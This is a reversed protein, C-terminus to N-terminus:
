VIWEEPLPGGWMAEKISLAAFPVVDLRKDDDQEEYGCLFQAGAVSLRVAMEETVPIPDSGSLQGVPVQELSFRFFGYDLFWAALVAVAVTDFEPPRFRGLGGRVGSFAAERGVIAARVIDLFNVYAGAPRDKVPVDAWLDSSYESTREASIERAARINNQM